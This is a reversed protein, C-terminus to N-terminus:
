LGPRHAREDDSDPHEEAGDGVRLLARGRPDPDLDLAALAAHEELPHEGVGRGLARLQARAVHDHAHVLGGDDLRAVDDAVERLLADPLADRQRHPARPAYMGEPEGELRAPVLELLHALLEDALRRRARERHAAEGPLDDDDLEPRRPAPRAVRRQRAEARPLLLVARAPQADDAHRGLGRLDDGPVHRPLAQAV